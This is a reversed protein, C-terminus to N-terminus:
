EGSKAIKYADGGWIDRIVPSEHVLEGKDNYVKFYGDIPTELDRADIIAIGTKVITEKIKGGSWLEIRYGDPLGEVRIEDGTPTAFNEPPIIESEGNPKIWGLKVVAYPHRNYFLYRLRHYGAALEVLPSHYVTPAQDKWADILLEGDLWFKSGDDSLVYFRYTGEVPVILYGTWEVGFYEAPVNETPKDWWTFDINEDIRTCKIMDGTVEEPPNEGQWTFYKGLLGEVKGQKLRIFVYSM